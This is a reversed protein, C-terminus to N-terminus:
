SVTEIFGASAADLMADFDTDDSFSVTKQQKRKNEESKKVEKQKRKNRPEEQVLNKLLKEREIDEANDDKCLDSLEKEFQDKTRKLSRLRDAALVQQLTFDDSSVQVGSENKNKEGQDGKDDGCDCEHHKSSSVNRLPEITSEVADIEFEIARLKNYLKAKSTSSPNISELRDFPEERSSGNVKHSNEAIDTAQFKFIAITLTVFEKFSLLFIRNTM